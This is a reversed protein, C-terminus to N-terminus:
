RSAEMGDALELAALAAETLEKQSRRIALLAWNTSYGDLDGRRRHFQYYREALELHRGAAVVREVTEVRDM